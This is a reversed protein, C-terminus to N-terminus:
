GNPTALLTRAYCVALRDRAPTNCWTAFYMIQWSSCGTHKSVIEPVEFCQPVVRGEKCEQMWAYVGVFCGCYPIGDGDLNRHLYTTPDLHPIDCTAQAVEPDAAVMARITEKLEDPIRLM